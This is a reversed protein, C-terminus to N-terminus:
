QKTNVVLFPRSLELPEWKADGTLVLHLALSLLCGRYFPLPLMGQEGMVVVGIICEPLPSIVVSSARWNCTVIRLRLGVKTKEVVVDRYM